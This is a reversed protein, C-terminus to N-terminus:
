APVTDPIPTTIEDATDEGPPRIPRLYKDECISIRRGTSARLPLGSMSVYEWCPVGRVVDLVTVVIRVGLLNAADPGSGIIEAIDNPRCNM